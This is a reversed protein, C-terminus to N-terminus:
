VCNVNESPKPAQTQTKAKAITKHATAWHRDTQRLKDGAHFGVGREIVEGARIAQVATRSLRRHNFAATTAWRFIPDFQQQQQQQETNGHQRTATAVPLFGVLSTQQQGVVFGFCCCCCFFLLGIDLESQSWCYFRNVLPKRNQQGLKSISLCVSSPWLSCRVSAPLLTIMAKIPPGM